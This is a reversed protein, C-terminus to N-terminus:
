PVGANINIPNGEEEIKIKANSLIAAIAGYEWRSPHIFKALKNLLIEHDVSDYAKSLDFL